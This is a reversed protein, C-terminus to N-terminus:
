RQTVDQSFGRVRCVSFGRSLFVTNARNDAVIMSRQPPIISLEFVQQLWIDCAPFGETQAIRVRRHFQNVSYVGCKLSLKFILVQLLPTNVISGFM